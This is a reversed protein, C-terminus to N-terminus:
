TVKSFPYRDFRGVGNAAGVVDSKKSGNVGLWKPFLSGFSEDPPVLLRVPAPEALKQFIDAPVADDSVVWFLGTVSHCHFYEVAHLM